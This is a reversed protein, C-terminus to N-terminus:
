SLSFKQNVAIECMEWLKKSAVQDTLNSEKSILWNSKGAKMGKIPKGVLNFLGGPTYLDGANVSERFAATVLSMTGDSASQKPTLYNVSLSLARKFFGIMGESERGNLPELVNTTALGPDAIVGIVNDVDQSSLRRNLETVLLCNALKSQSYRQTLFNTGGLTGEESKTFYREDFTIWGRASSTHVVVRSPNEKAGAKQLVKFLLSTLLFHSLHNVQIQLDFGDVTRKDAHFAIGANNILVDLGDKCQSTVTQAAKRVLCKFSSFGNGSEFSTLDCDVLILDTKSKHAEKEKGLLEM